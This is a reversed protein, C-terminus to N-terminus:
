SEADGLLKLYDAHHSRSGNRPHLDYVSESQETVAM